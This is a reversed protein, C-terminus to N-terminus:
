PRRALRSTSAWRYSLRVQQVRLTVVGLVLAVLLGACFLGRAMAQLRRRDRDRHFRAIEQRPTFGPGARLSGAATSPAPRRSM